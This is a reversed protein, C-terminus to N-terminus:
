SIKSYEVKWPPVENEGGVEFNNSLVEGRVIQIQWRM